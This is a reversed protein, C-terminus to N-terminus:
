ALGELKDLNADLHGYGKLCLIRSYSDKYKLIQEIMFEDRFINLNATIENFLNLQLYPHFYDHYNKNEDFGEGLVKQLCLTFNEVSFEFDDVRLRRLLEKQFGEDQFLYSDWNHYYEWQSLGCYAFAVELSYKRAVYEIRSMLDPDNGKIEIGAVTALYNVYGMEKGLAISQEKNRFEANEWGSELLVM